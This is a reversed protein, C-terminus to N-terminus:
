YPSPSTMFQVSICNTLPYSSLSIIMLPTHYLTNMHANLKTKYTSTRLRLQLPAFAQCFLYNNMKKLHPEVKGRQTMLHTTENPKTQQNTKKQNLKSYYSSYFQMPNLSRVDKDKFTVSPLQRFFKSFLKVAELSSNLNQKQSHSFLNEMEQSLARASHKYVKSPLSTIVRFKKKGKRNTM